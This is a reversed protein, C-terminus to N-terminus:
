CVPNLNALEDIYCSSHMAYINEFLLCVTHQLQSLAHIIKKSCKIHTRLFLVIIMVLLIVIEASLVNCM